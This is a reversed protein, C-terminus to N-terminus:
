GCARAARILGAGFIDDKGAPGLDAANRQLYRRIGEVSREAILNADAAVLATVYPAAASTGTVVRMKGISEILVDVGPAAVDIHDGRVALRYVALDRDVATVALVFPFAAPYQPPADPGLNGAAAVFIMGDGAASGLARNMLKNFPGALSVNVLTVGEVKLWNVARLIADVGALEGRGDGPDIVNASLLVGGTLRGKGFLLDAMLTGHNTRPAADSRTFVKQVIRGSTLGPHAPEVGADILGIKRQAPCGNAPWGIAQNAFGQDASVAQLRYAHNAGATVGPVLAEVEAIAEPITRGAPIRLHVMTESLGTLRDIRTVAYGLAEVEATLIDPADATLVLLARDDVIEAVQATPKGPAAADHTQACASLAFLSTFLIMFFRM